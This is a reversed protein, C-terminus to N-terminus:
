LQGGGQIEDKKGIAKKLTACTKVVPNSKV